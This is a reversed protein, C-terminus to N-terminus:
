YMHKGKRINFNFQELFASNDLVGNVTKYLFAQEGIDRRRAVTVYNYEKLLKIYSVKNQFSSIHYKKFYRLFRKQTQEIQNQYSKHVPSWIISAHELKSRVIGNCPLSLAYISILKEFGVRKYANKVINAIHVHFSM